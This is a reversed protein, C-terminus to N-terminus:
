ADVAAEDDGVLAQVGADAVDVGDAVDDGAQLQRVAAERLADEDGLLDGAQLGRRDDLRSM